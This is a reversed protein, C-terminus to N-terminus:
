RDPAAITAAGSFVGEGYRSAGRWFTVAGHGKSGNRGADVFDAAITAPSEREVARAFQHRHHLSIATPIALAVFGDVPLRQRNIRNVFFGEVRGTDVLAGRPAERHSM